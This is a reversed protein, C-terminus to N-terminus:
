GAPTWRSRRSTSPRVRDLAVWALVAVPPAALAAIGVRRDRSRDCADLLAEEHPGTTQDAERARGTEGDAPLGPADLVALCREPGTSDNPNDVPPQSVLLWVMWGFGLVALAAAAYGLRRPSNTEQRM